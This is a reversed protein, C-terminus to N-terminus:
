HYLYMLWSLALSENIDLNVFCNRGYKYHDIYIIKFIKNKSCVFKILNKDDSILDVYPLINDTNLYVSKTSKLAKITDEYILSYEKLLNLSNNFEHTHLFYDHYIKYKLDQPLNQLNNVCIMKKDEKDM